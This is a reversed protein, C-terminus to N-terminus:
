SVRSSISFIETHCLVQFIRKLWRRLDASPDLLTHSQDDATAAVANVHPKWKM